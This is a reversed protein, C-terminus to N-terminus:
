SWGEKRSTTEGEESRERAKTTGVGAASRALALAGTVGSLDGLGPTTIFESLDGAAPGDMYGALLGETKERLRQLLGPTKMVGGGFIIRDPSHALTLTLALHGLYEAELDIAPHDADFASLERGWRDLIAPGCALGELCDGHSPCRGPFPDRKLDRPPRIHGMEYHTAGSLIEGNRLVGAGIGTGVTVYALTACGRGASALYEGLGAASVDTEVMIPAGLPALGELYSAGPWGSKPTPGVVGYSASERNVNVPGFAAIGLGALPGFDNMATKFFRVCADFTETPQATPFVVNRVIETLSYGVTCIFKTGGSEIAGFIPREGMM